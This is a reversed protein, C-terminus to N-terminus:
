LRDSYVHLKHLALICLLNRETNRKGAEKSCNEARGLGTEMMNKYIKDRKKILKWIKATIWPYSGKQRPRKAPIYRTISDIIIM